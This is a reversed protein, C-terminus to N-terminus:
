VRSQKNNKHINKRSVSRLLSKEVFEFHEKMSKVAVSAKGSEIARLIKKHEVYIEKIYQIKDAEEEPLFSYYNYVQFLLGTVSNYVKFIIENHTSKVIARHFSIDSAIMEQFEM